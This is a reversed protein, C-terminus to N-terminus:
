IDEIPRQGVVRAPIGAVISLPPVDRLVVANAGIISGRGIRIPGLVKAGAGIMVNKEVVPHGDPRDSGVWESGRDGLTVGHYLFCDGELVVESGIVLGFGHVIVVGPGLEAQFAIDIAFLTQALRTLALPLLPVRKRWLLHSLRYLTIAQLGRNTLVVRLTQRPSAASRLLRAVDRRFARGLGPARPPAPAAQEPAAQELAPQAPADLAASPESM